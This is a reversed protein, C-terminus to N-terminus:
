KMIILDSRLLNLACTNIEKLNIIYIVDSKKKCFDQNMQFDLTTGGLHTGATLSKLVDEEKMQLVLLFSMIFKGQTTFVNPSCLPRCFM